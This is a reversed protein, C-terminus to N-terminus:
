AYQPQFTFDTSKKLYDIVSEMAYKLYDVTMTLSNNNEEIEKIKATKETLEDITEQMQVMNNKIQAIDNQIVAMTSQMLAMTKNIKIIALILIFFFVKEYYDEM